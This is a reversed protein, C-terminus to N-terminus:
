FRWYGLNSLINKALIALTRVRAATAVASVPIGVRRSHLAVVSVLSICNSIVSTVINAASSHGSDRAGVTGVAENSAVAPLCLTSNGLEGVDTGGGGNRAPVRGLYTVHMGSYNATGSMTELASSAPLEAVIALRDVDKSNIMGCSAEVDGQVGHVVQRVALSDIETPNIRSGCLNSDAVTAQLGTFKLLANNAADRADSCLM